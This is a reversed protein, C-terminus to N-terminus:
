SAGEPVEEITTEGDDKPEHAEGGVEVVLTLAQLSVLSTCPHRERARCENSWVSLQWRLSTGVQITYAHEVKTAM